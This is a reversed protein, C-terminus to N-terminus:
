ATEGRAQALAALADTYATHGSENSWEMDKVCAVLADYLAPSAAILHADAKILAYPICVNYPGSDIDGNNPDISWPGPTTGPASM